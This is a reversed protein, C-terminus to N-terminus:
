MAIKTLPPPYKRFLGGMAAWQLGSKCSLKCNSDSPSEQFFWMAIWKSMAIKTLPPPLEQFTRENCNM